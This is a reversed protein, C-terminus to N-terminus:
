RAGDSPSRPGASRQPMSANLACDSAQQSDSEARATIRLKPDAPEVDDRHLKLRGTWITTGEQSLIFRLSASSASLSFFPTKPRLM